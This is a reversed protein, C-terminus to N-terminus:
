RKEVDGIKIDFTLGRPSIASNRVDMCIAFPLVSVHQDCPFQLNPGFHAFM